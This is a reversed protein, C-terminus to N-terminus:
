GTVLFCGIHYLRRLWAVDQAYEGEQGLAPCEEDDLAERFARVREGFDCAIERANARADEGFTELLEFGFAEDTALDDGFLRDLDSVAEGLLSAGELAAEFREGAPVLLPIPSLTRSAQM